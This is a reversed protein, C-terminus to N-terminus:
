KRDKDIIIGYKKFKNGESSIVNIHMYNGHNTNPYHNMIVKNNQFDLLDQYKFDTKYIVGHNEILKDEYSDTINKNTGTGPIKVANPWNHNLISYAKEVSDVFHDGGNEKFEKAEKIFHHDRTYSDYTDKYEPKRKIKDAIGILETDCSFDWELHEIPDDSNEGHIPIKYKQEIRGSEPGIVASAHDEKFKEWDEVANGTSPYYKVPEYHTMKPKRLGIEPKNFSSKTLDQPNQNPILNQGKQKPIITDPKKQGTKQKTKAENPTKSVPKVNDYYNLNGLVQSKTKNEHNNISESTSRTRSHGSLSQKDQTKNQAQNEYSQKQQEYAVKDFASREKYRVPKDKSKNVFRAFGMSRSMPAFGSVYMKSFGNTRNELDFGETKEFDLIKELSEMKM